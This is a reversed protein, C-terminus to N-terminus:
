PGLPLLLPADYSLALTARYKRGPASPPGIKGGGRKAILGQRSDACRRSRTGPPYTAGSHPGPFATLGCRPLRLVPVMPTFGRGM